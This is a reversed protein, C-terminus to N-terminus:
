NADPSQERGLTESLTKASGFEASKELFKQFNGFGFFVANVLELSLVCVLILM